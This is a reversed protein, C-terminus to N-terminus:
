QFNLNFQIMRSVRDSVLMTVSAQVAQSGGAVFLALRGPFWILADLTVLRICPNTM